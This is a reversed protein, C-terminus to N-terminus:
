RRGQSSLPDCLPAAALLAVWLERRTQSAGEKGGKAKIGLAAGGTDAGWRARGQQGKAQSRRWYPPPRRGGVGAHGSLKAHSLGLWETSLRGEPGECVIPVGPINDQRPQILHELNLGDSADEAEQGQQGGKM